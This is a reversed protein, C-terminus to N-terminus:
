YGWGYYYRPAYYYRPYYHRYGYYGYYGVNEAKQATTSEVKAPRIMTAASATVPAAVAGAVVSLAIAAIINKRIM